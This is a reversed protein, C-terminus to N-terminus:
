RPIVTICLHDDDIVLKPYIFIIITVNNDVISINVKTLVKEGVYYVITREILKRM